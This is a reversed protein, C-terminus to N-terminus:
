VIKEKSKDYQLYNGTLQVLIEPSRYIRILIEYLAHERKVDGEQRSMYISDALELIDDCYPQEEQIVKM